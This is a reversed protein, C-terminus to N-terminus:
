IRVPGAEIGVQSVAAPQNSGAGLTICCRVCRSIRSNVEDALRKVAWRDVSPGTISVQALLQYDSLAAGIRWIKPLIM